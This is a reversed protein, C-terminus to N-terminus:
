HYLGQLEAVESSGIAAVRRQADRSFAGFSHLFATGRRGLRYQVVFRGGDGPGAHPIVWLGRRLFKLARDIQVPSLKLAKQIQSFRLPKEELALLVRIYDKHGLLEMIMSITYYCKTIM